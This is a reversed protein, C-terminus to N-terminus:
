PLEPPSPPIGRLSGCTISDSVAIPRDGGALLGVVYNGPRRPLWRGEWLVLHHELGVSWVEVDIHDDTALPRDPDAAAAFGVMPRGAPLWEGRRGWRWQVVVTDGRCTPRDLSPPVEGPEGLRDMVRQPRGPRAEVTDPPGSLPGASLSDVLEASIRAVMAASGPGFLTSGGEYTQASYEEATALYQLFGNAISVVRAQPPRAGGAAARLAQEIRQGSETTVEAPVGALIMDGIQYIGFQGVHPLGKSVVHRELWEGLLARKAGQCGSLDPNTAAPGEEFGADFLGLVRWGYVRTRADAAGGATSTGTFPTDCVGLSKGEQSFDITRFARRISWAVPQPTLQDFLAAAEAAIREGIWEIARRASAICAGGGARSVRRWGWIRAAFPSEPSERVRIQPAPCRSDAPWDPSTDGETGNAFVHVAVGPRGGRALRLSDIHRELGREVVGHLDADLLQTEASNGTGHMAFISYAGAPLYQGTLSDRLDVRLLTLRPDVAVKAPPLGAPPAGLLAPYPVNRERAAMSRIRTYGWVERTGWAVRAPRLGDAGLRVAAAIRAVLSDTLAEDYGGVEANHDNYESAEYHHGPASHTHTASLLLRDTGISTSDAVLRQAVRRHLLLSVHPLDVVVLALRSGSSDQLVLARAYLRLRYGAAKRGEPGNGALGVGPPPTIEIRGFGASFSLTDRAPPPLPAVSPLYVPPSGCAASTLALAVLLYRAPRRLMM